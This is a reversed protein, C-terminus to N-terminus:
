IVYAVVALEMYVWNSLETSGYLFASFFLVAQTTAKYFWLTFYGDEQSSAESVRWFEEDGTIFILYMRGAGWKGRITKQGNM